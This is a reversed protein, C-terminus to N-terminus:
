KDTEYKKMVVWVPTGAPVMAQLRPPLEVWAVQGEYYEGKIFRKFANIGLKKDLAEQLLRKGEKIDGGAARRAANYHAWSLEFTRVNPSFFAAVAHWESVRPMQVDWAAALDSLTPQEPDVPRGPIVPFAQMFGVALDGLAWANGDRKQVLALGADVFDEFDQPAPVGGAGNMDAKIEAFTRGGM